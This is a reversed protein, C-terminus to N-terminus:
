HAALEAACKKNKLRRAVASRPSANVLRGPGPGGRVRCHPRLSFASKAPTRSNFIGEKFYIQENARPNKKWFFKKSERNGDHELEGKIQEEARTTRLNHACLFVAYFVGAEFFLVCCGVQGCAPPPYKFSAAFRCGRQIGSDGM